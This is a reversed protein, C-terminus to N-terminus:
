TPTFAGPLGILLIKKGAVRDKVNIHEPPFGYHLQVDEPIKDGVNIAFAAASLVGALLVHLLLVKMTIITTHQANHATVLNFSLDFQQRYL